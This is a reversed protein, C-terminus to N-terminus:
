AAASRSRNLSEEIRRRTWDIDASQEELTKTTRRTRPLQKVTHSFGGTAHKMTSQFRQVLVLAALTYVVGIVLASLPLGIEIALGYIAAMTLCILALLGVAVLAVGSVLIRSLPATQSSFETKVLEYEQSALTRVDTFLRLLVSRAPQSRLENPQATTDM